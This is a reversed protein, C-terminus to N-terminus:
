KGGLLTKPDIRVYYGTGNFSKELETPKICKYCLGKNTMVEEFHWKFKKSTEHIIEYPINFYRFGNKDLILYLMYDTLKSSRNTFVYSNPTDSERSPRQYIELPITPYDMGICVKIDVNVEKGDALFIKYDVGLKQEKKATIKKWGVNNPFLTDWLHSDKIAEDGWHEKEVTRDMSSFNNIYDIVEDYDYSVKM